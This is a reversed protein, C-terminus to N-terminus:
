RFIERNRNYVDREKRLKENKEDVFFVNFDDPIKLMDKIIQIESFTFEQTGAIKEEMAPCDIGANLAAQEISMGSDQIIKRLWFLEIM